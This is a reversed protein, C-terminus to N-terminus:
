PSSALASPFIIFKSRGYDIFGESRLKHLEVSTTERTSGIMEAFDQQTLELGLAYLDIAEGTGFRCSLYRLTAILKSRVTTQEITDVRRLLDDYHHSMTSAIDTMFALNTKAAAIFEQKNVEYAEGDSLATYFFNIPLSSFLQETPVIDYRGAIWLLRENGDEDLSTVKVFGQRLALISLPTEGESLLIERKTFSRTPYQRIFRASEM